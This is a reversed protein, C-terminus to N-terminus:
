FLDPYKKKVEDLSLTKITGNKIKASIKQLKKLALEDEIQKIEGIIGYEKGLKVVGARIVEAKTKFIGAKTLKEIVLDQIPELRVIAESM